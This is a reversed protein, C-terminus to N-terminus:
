TNGTEGYLHWPKLRVAAAAQGSMMSTICFVPSAFEADHMALFGSARM